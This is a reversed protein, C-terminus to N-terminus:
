DEVVEVGRIIDEKDDLAARADDEIRLGSLHHAEAVETGAIGEALERGDVATGARCADLRARAAERRRHRGVGKAVQNMDLRAHRPRQQTLLDPVM